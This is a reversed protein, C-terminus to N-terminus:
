RRAAEGVQESALDGVDAPEDDEREGREAGPKRGVARLEDEPADELADAPGEQERVRGRENVSAKGRLCSPKAMPVFVMIAATPRTM